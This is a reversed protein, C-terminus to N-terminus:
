PCEVVLPERSLPKWWHIVRRTHTSFVHKAFARRAASMDPKIGGKVQVFMADENAKQALLDSAWQDRKIPILGDPTYVVRMIELDGVEYGLDQLYKKSRAKWRSGKSSNSPM